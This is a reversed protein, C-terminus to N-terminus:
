SLINVTFTYHGEGKKPDKLLKKNPDYTDTMDKNGGGM